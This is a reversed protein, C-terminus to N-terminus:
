PHVVLTKLGGALMPGGPPQYLVPTPLAAGNDEVVFSTGNWRALLSQGASSIVVDDDDVAFLGDASINTTIRTWSTGNGRYVAAGAAIWILGNAGHIAGLDETADLTLDPTLVDPRSREWQLLTGKTGTIWLRDRDAGWVSMLDETVGTAVRTWASDKYYYAIGGYGVALAEGPAIAWVKTFYRHEAVPARELQAKTWSRGDFHFANAIYATQDETVEFGVGFLEDGSGTRVGSIASAAIVPQLTALSRGNAKLIRGGTAYYMDEKSAGWMSQLNIVQPDIVPTVTSASNRTYVSGAGGVLWWRGDIIAASYLFVGISSTDVPTTTLRAGDWHVFASAASSNSEWWWWVDDKGLATAAGLFGTALGTPVQTWTRGDWHVLEGDSGSVWIDDKGVGAFSGIPVGGSYSVTFDRGNSHIINGPLATMWFDDAATGWISGLFCGGCGADLREFVGGGVARGLTGNNLTVWVDGNPAEWISNFSVLGGPPLVDKITWREGDWHQVTAGSLLWMDKPGLGAIAYASAIPAHGAPQTLEHAKWEEGNWQLVTNHQGILWVNDPATSFVKIYDNGSPSPMTWCWQDASCMAPLAALAALPDPEGGPADPPMPAGSGSGAGPAEPGSEEFSCAGALTALAALAIFAILAILATSIPLPAASRPLSLKSM